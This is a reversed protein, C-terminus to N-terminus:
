NCLACHLLDGKIFGKLKRLDFPKGNCSHVDEQFFRHAFVQSYQSLFSQSVNLPGTQSSISYLSSNSGDENILNIIEEEELMTQSKEKSLTQSNLLKGQRKSLLEKKQESM